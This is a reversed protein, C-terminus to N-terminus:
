FEPIIRISLFASTSPGPPMGSTSVHWAAKTLVRSVENWVPDLERHMWEFALLGDNKSLAKGIRSNQQTFLEDWMEIMPYPPSTVVLDVCGDPLDDMKKADKFFLNHNTEM